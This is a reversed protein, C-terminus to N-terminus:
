VQVWRPGFGPILLPGRGNTDGVSYHASTAGYLAQELGRPGHLLRGHQETTSHGDQM